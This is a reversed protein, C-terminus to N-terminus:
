DVQNCFKSYGQSNAVKVALLSVSSLKLKHKIMISITKITRKKFCMKFQKRSANVYSLVAVLKSQKVDFLM